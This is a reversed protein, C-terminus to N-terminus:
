GNILHHKMTSTMYGAKKTEKNTAEKDTRSADVAPNKKFCKESSKGNGILYPM